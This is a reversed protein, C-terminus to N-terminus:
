GARELFDVMAGNTVSGHVLILREVIADYL